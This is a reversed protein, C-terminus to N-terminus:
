VENHDCNNEDGDGDDDEDSDYFLYSAYREEVHIKCTVWGSEIM